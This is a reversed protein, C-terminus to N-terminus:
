GAKVGTVTGMWLHEWGIVSRRYHNDHRVVADNQSVGVSGGM